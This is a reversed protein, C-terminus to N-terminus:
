DGSITYYGNSFITDDKGDGNVDYIPEGYVSPIHGDGHHGKITQQKIWESDLVGTDIMEGSDINYLKITLGWLIIENLGDGDVDIADMISIGTPLTKVDKPPNWKGNKYNGFIDSIYKLGGGGNMVNCFLDPNGDSDGDLIRLTSLEGGFVEKYDMKIRKNDVGFNIKEGDDYVVWIHDDHNIVRLFDYPTYVDKILPVKGDPTVYYVIHDTKNLFCFVPKNNVEVVDICDDTVDNVINKDFHVKFIDLYTSIANPYAKPDVFVKEKGVEKPMAGNEIGIKYSLEEVEYASTDGDGNTDGHDPTYPTEDNYHNHIYSAAAGTAGLIAGATVVGALAKYWTPHREKWSRNPDNKDIPNGSGGAVDKLEPFFYFLNIEEDEFEHKIGNADILYHEGDDFVYKGNGHYNFANSQDRSGDKFFGVKRLGLARSYYELDEENLPVEGHKEKLSFIGNQSEETEYLSEKLSELGARGNMDQIPDYVESMIIM